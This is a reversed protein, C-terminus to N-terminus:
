LDRCLAVVEPATRADLVFDPEFRQVRAVFLRVASWQGADDEPAPGAPPVELPAVELVQEQPLRLAERSTALVTLAPMQALLRAIDGAATVVQELTDLILLAPGPSLSDRIRDLVEDEDRAGQGIARAIAPLVAHPDTIAALPVFHVHRFSPAVEYGAEVALRTKGVGGPGTLTVLRVAPDALWTALTDLSHERGILAALRPPLEIVRSHEPHLRPLATSADPTAPGDGDEGQPDAHGDRPPDHHRDSSPHRM